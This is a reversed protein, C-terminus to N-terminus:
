GGRSFHQGAHAVALVVIVCWSKDFTHKAEDNEGNHWLLCGIANLSLAKDITHRQLQPRDKVDRHCLKEQIALARKHHELAADIMNLFRHYDALLGQTVCLCPFM